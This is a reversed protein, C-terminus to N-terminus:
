KLEMLPSARPDSSRRYKRRQLDEEVGFNSIVTMPGVLADSVGSATRRSRRRTRPRSPEGSPDDVDAKSSAVAILNWIRRLWSARTVAAARPRGLQLLADHADVRDLGLRHEVVQECQAVVQLRDPRVRRLGVLEVHM